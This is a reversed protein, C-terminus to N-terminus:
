WLTTTVYANYFMGCINSIVQRPPSFILIDDFFILVFVCFFDQLIDNMLAQFTTPTNTLSFLIALFEIHGHHTMFTMKNIDGADMCVQHYGSRLDLKTFFRDDHLEDLLENVVLIPFMNCVTKANLTRYDVCLCWSSDHKKVLLVPSSFVSSSPHIIGSQLMEKCQGELEDKVLQPYHYPRVAVPVTDPLLHIQHNHRHPPPLGTSTSFVDDFEVLLAAFIDATTVTHAVAVERRALVGQWVTRHNDRWYSM